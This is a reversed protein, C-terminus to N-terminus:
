SKQEQLSSASLADSNVTSPGESAARGLWSATLPVLIEFLMWENSSAHTKMDEKRKWRMESMMMSKRGKVTAFVIDGVFTQGFELTSGVHEKGWTHAQTSSLDISTPHVSEDPLRQSFFALAFLAVVIGQNLLDCLPQRLTPGV